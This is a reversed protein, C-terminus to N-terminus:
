KYVKSNILQNITVKKREHKCGKFKMGLSVCCKCCITWKREYFPCIDDPYIVSIIHHKCNQCTYEWVIELQEVIQVKENM